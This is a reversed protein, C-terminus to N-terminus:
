GKRPNATYNEAEQKRKEIARALYDKCTIFTSCRGGNKVIYIVHVCNYFSGDPKAIGVREIRQVKIGKSELLMASRKHTYFMRFITPTQTTATM